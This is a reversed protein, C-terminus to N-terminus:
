RSLITEAPPRATFSFWYISAALAMPQPLARIRPRCTKGWHMAGYIIMTVAAM